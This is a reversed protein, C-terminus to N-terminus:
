TSPKKFFRHINKATTRYTVMSVRSVKQKKYTDVWRVYYDYFSISKGIDVGNALSSENKAAWERALAKTPFGSRSKYHRKGDQMWSIRAQWKGYRKAYSAMYSMGKNLLIPLM